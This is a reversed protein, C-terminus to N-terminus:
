FLKGQEDQKETRLTDYPNISDNSKVEEDSSDTGPENLYAIVKKIDEWVERKQPSSDGGNRLIFSPHYTPMVRIGKYSSWRGRMKTIGQADPILFKTSPNGLTIIVKPKIIEIQRELYGRCAAVEDQDPPRDRTGQMDVTPRCKVVNAIFVDKRLIKMGKEIIATLLQGSRGVFPRGQADEDRGPGEGIFMVKADAAGEGFVVRSRTQSLKCKTCKAMEDELDSIEKEIIERTRRM